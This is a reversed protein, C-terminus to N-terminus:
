FLACAHSDCEDILTKLFVRFFGGMDSESVLTDLALQVTTSQLRASCEARQRRELERAYETRLAEVSLAQIDVPEEEFPCAYDDFANVQPQQAPRADPQEDKM